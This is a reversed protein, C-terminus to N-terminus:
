WSGTAGGGGSFGGGFGGGFGGPSSDHPLKELVKGTGKVMFVILIIIIGAVVWGWGRKGHRFLSVCVPILALVILAEIVLDWPIGIWMGAFQRIISRVGKDIGGGFDGRRFSPLIDRDM